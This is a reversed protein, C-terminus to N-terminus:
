ANDRITQQTTTTGLIERQTRRWAGPSRGTAKRFCNCFHAQDSFGCLIAIGSLSDDGTLMLCRARDVRRRTIYSHPTEGFTRKFSRCFHATSRRAIASLDRVHIREHLHEDIYMRIRSVQWGALEGLHYDTGDVRAQREHEIRLLSCARRLMKEAKDDDRGIARHAVELLSRLADALGTLAAEQRLRDLGDDELLFAPVKDNHDSVFTADAPHHTTIQM